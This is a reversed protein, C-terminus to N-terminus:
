YTLQSILGRLDSAMRALDDVAQKTQSVGNTTLEAAAAVSMVNGAIESVSGAADTVNRSMENSTSTQEEVASAITTQYGNIRDIVEGIELISAVAAGTDSQIAQVRRGIEDTAKATEQALDKVESAVVAFGKGADGARAAEITANLALLNTQEAIATILKLVNSIQGSSEDLRAVTANADSAVEVAHAAVRAAESANRAIEQISSSMEDSGTALTRVNTDVNDAAAAVVASQTATEEAASAISAAVMSLEESSSALGDANGAVAGVLTRLRATAEDLAAAMRGIEDTSDVAASQTLDGRALANVVRLVKHVATVLAGAVLWAMILALTGGVLLVALVITRASRVSARADAVQTAADAAARNELATLANNYALAAPKVQSDRLTRYGTWDLARARQLLAGGVVVSYKKWAAQFDAVAQATPNDTRAVFAAFEKDVTVLDALFAVHESASHGPLADALADVRTQLVGRRVAALQQVPALGHDRVAEVRNGLDTLRVLATAGVLIAVLVATLVSGLIKTRVSRDLVFRWTSRHVAVSGTGNSKQDRM